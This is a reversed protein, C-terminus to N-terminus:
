VRPASVIEWREARLVPSTGQLSTRWTDLSHQLKQLKGNHWLWEMGDKLMMGRIINGQTELIEHFSKFFM